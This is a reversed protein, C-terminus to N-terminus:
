VGQWDGQDIEPFGDDPRRPVTWGTEQMAREVAVATEATRALPSQVIELPPGAPVPLFPAARPAALRAAVLAAQRRGIDTLPTDARGQFRGEAILTSEGHRVFVLTADLGDPILPAEADATLPRGRTRAQDDM